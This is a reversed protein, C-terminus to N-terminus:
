GITVTYEVGQVPADILISEVNDVDNDGNRLAPLSPNSQLRWPYFTQGNGTVRIDLDNVLAKLTSNLVGNRATGAPDTWCITAKFPNGDSTFKYTITESQNLIEETVLSSIGNYFITEAAKKSNLLGWGFNSDPGVAGADDATHCVLGKLTSARMYKDFQKEYYEQLLILSGSVNPASMSTGSLTLYSDDASDGCSLLGTGQGAIDPKIRRDDTPGQSSGSNISVSVLNGNGDIVAQQANAIVLNNKSTKNGNLKDYGVALPAPNTNQGDNGASVVMLYYPLEYSLQDWARSDSSYAGMLWSPANSVPVGYSHNTILMGNRAQSIVETADNFWDFGRVRVLSAMGKAEARIGSAAITGAVHNAHFSNSNLAYEGDGISARNGFERHSTRMPGGDWVGVTLGQGNLGYTSNLYNTRTSIAATTNNDISYYKLTNNDILGVLQSVSGDSNKIELPLGLSDAIKIAKSYELQYNENYSKELKILENQNYNNIVKNISSEQAYIICCFLSLLLCIYNKNM